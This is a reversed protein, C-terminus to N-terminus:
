RNNQTKPVYFLGLTLKQRQTQRDIWDTKAATGARLEIVSSFELMDSLLSVNPLTRLWGLM